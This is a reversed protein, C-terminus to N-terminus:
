NSRPEHFVSADSLIRRLFESCAESESRFTALGTKLGREAYYIQWGSGLLDTIAALRYVEGSGDSTFSYCHQPVHAADLAAKLEILNM